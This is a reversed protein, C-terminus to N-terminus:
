SQITPSTKSIEEISQLATDVAKIQEGYVNDKEKMQSKSNEVEQLAREIELEKRRQERKTDEQVDKNWNQLDKKLKEVYQERERVQEKLESRAAMIDLKKTTLREVISYRSQSESM